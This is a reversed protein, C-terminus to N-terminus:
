APAPEQEQKLIGLPGRNMKDTLSHHQKDAGIISKNGKDYFNDVQKLRKIGQCRM